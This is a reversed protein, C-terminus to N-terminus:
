TFFFVYAGGLLIIGAEVLALRELFLIVRATRLTYLSLNEKIINLQEMM